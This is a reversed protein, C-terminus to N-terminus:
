FRYGFSMGYLYHFQERETIISQNEHLNLNIAGWNLALTAAPGLGIQIGLTAKAIVGVERNETSGAAFDMLFYDPNYASNLPWRLTPGILWYLGNLDLTGNEVLHLRASGLEVGLGFQTGEEEVGTKFSVGNFNLRQGYGYSASSSLGLESWRCPVEGTAVDYLYKALYFSWVIVVFAGIIVFVVVADDGSGSSDLHLNLNVGGGAGDSSGGCRESVRRSAPHLEREDASAASRYGGNQVVQLPLEASSQRYGAGELQAALQPYEEASVHIVRAHPYAALLQQKQEASVLPQAGASLPVVTMWAVTVCLFRTITRKLM